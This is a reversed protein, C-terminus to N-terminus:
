STMGVPGRALTTSPYAAGVPRQQPIFTRMGPAIGRASMIRAQLGCLRCLDPCSRQRFGIGTVGAVGVVGAVEIWKDIQHNLSKNYCTVHM